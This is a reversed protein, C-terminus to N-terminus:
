LFNAWASQDMINEKMSRECKEADAVFFHPTMAWIEMNAVEFMGGDKGSDDGVLCPNGYTLCPGSSGVTLNGDLAFGFGAGSRGVTGGGAAIKDDALLMCLENEGTWWFVEIDGENHAIEDLLTPSMDPLTTTRRKKM